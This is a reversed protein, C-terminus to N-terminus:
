RWILTAALGASTLALIACAWWLRVGQRQLQDVAQVVRANHEALQEILRASQAQEAELQEVRQQWAQMSQAAHDQAEQQQATSGMLKRAAQVVQPTAEIVEGWPVLKLAALWGSM